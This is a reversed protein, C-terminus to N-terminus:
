QKLIKIYNLFLHPDENQVLHLDIITKLIIISM